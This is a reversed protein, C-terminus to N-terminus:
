PGIEVMALPRGNERVICAAVKGNAPECQIALKANESLGSLTFEDRLLSSVRQLDSTREARVQELVNNLVVVARTENWYLRELRHVANLAAYFCGLLLFLIATAGIVETLTFGGLQNKRHNDRVNAMNVEDNGM